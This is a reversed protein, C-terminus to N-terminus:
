SLTLSDFQITYLSTGWTPDQGGSISVTLNNVPAFSRTISFQQGNGPPTQTADAYFVRVGNVDIAMWRSSPMASSSLLGKFTLTNWRSGTPATFTKSVGSETPVRDLTVTSGQVGYGNEIVPGYELCSGTGKGTTQTCLASHQWDVWGNVSWNWTLPPSIENVVTFVGIKSGSQENTKRLFVDWQGASMSPATLPFTCTLRTPSIVIVATANISREGTKALWISPSPGYAFDTGEITVPVITGSAGSPPTIFNVTPAPPSIEPSPTKKQPSTTFTGTLIVAIVLCIIAILILAGVIKLLGKNNNPPPTM